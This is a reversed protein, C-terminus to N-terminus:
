RLFSQSAVLLACHLDLIGQRLPSLSSISTWRMTTRESVPAPATLKTQFWLKNKKSVVEM